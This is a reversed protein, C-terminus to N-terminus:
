QPSNKSGEGGLSTRIISACSNKKRFLRRSSSCVAGHSPILVPFNVHFTHESHEMSMKIIVYITVFPGTWLQLARSLDCIKVLRQSVSLKWQDHVVESEMVWRAFLHLLPLCHFDKTSPDNVSLIEKELIQSRAPRGYQNGSLVLASEPTRGTCSGVLSMSLMGALVHM